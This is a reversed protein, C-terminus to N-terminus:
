APESSAFIGMRQADTSTGMQERKVAKEEERLTDNGVEQHADEEM